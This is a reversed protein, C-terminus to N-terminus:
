RGLRALWDDVIRDWSHDLAWRRMRQRTASLLEEDRARSLAEILLEPYQEASDCHFGEPITERLAGRDICVPICGAMQAKTGTICFTEPYTCPYTWFGAGSLERALTEHGVRGHERVGLPAAKALLARIRPEWGAPMDLWTQWGYYIDLTADPFRDRVQPWARLLVELGRTYNSAYICRYPDRPVGDHPSFQDPVIGNATFLCRELPVTAEGGAAEYQFRSLWMVAELQELPVSEFATPTYADHLWLLTKHAFRQLESAGGPDRWVVLVDFRNDDIQDASVHDSFLRREVFRPNCNPFGHLTDAPPNGYVTVHCGRRALAEAAYVAAEESGGSGRNRVTDPDWGEGAIGADCVIAVRTRLGEGRMLWRGCDSALPNDGYFRANARLRVAHTRLADRGHSSHRCTTFLDRLARFGVERSQTTCYFASVALNDPCWFDRVMEEETTSPPRRGAEHLCAELLTSALEYRQAHRCSEGARHLAMWERPNESFLQLERVVGALVPDAAGPAGVPSHDGKAHGITSPFPYLGVVGHLQVTSSGTWTATDQYFGPPTLASWPAGVRRLAYMPFLAPPIYDLPASVPLYDELLSRAAFPTLAYAHTGQVIRQVRAAFENIPTAYDFLTEEGESPGNLWPSVCGLYVLQADEPVSRWHTHWVEATMLAPHLRVDDELVLYWGPDSRAIREWLAKTTALVGFAGPSHEHFYASSLIRNAVLDEFRLQTGDIAEFREVELGFREFQESVRAWRETSGALNLCFIRRFTSNM